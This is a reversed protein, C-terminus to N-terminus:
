KIFWLLTATLIQSKISTMIMGTHRDYAFLGLAVESALILGSKVYNGTYAQGAGPVVFSLSTAIVPDKIKYNALNITINKPAITDNGIHKVGNNESVQAALSLYCIVILFILAIFKRLYLLGKVKNYHNNLGKFLIFRPIFICWCYIIGSKPASIKRGSTRNM